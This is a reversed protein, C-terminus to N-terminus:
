DARELNLEGKSIRYCKPMKQALERSHTVIIFTAQLEVNLECLLEHIQSSTDEDLNGTPEDMFVLDPQHVLSRAIAVRQREGGSLEAPKHDLRHGLNVRGLLSHARELDAALVKRGIRIPMLVNELATFEPLLHHFQFVFGLHQNRLRAVQNDSLGALSKGVIEISGSSPADLGAMLNLLTTKGSGSSGVIALMEGKTVTLNVDRLVPVQEPGIAYSRSLHQCVLINSM